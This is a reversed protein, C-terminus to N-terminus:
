SFRGVQASENAGKTKIQQGVVRKLWSIVRESCTIRSHPEDLQLPCRRSGVASVSIVGARALQVARM